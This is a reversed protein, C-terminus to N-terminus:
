IDARELAGLLVHFTKTRTIRFLPHHEIIEVTHAQAAATKPVLIVYM